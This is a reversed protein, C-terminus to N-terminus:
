LMQLEASARSISKNLSQIFAERVRDVDEDSRRPWGTSLIKEV